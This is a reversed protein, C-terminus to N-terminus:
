LRLVPAPCPHPFLESGHSFCTYCLGAAKLGGPGDGVGAGPLGAAKPPWVGPTPPPPPHRQPSCDRWESAASERSTRWAADARRRWRQPGREPDRVQEERKEERKPTTGPGRERLAVRLLYWSARLRGRTQRSLLRALLVLCQGTAHAQTVASLRARAGGKRGRLTERFGQHHM